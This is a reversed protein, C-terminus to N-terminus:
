VKRDFLKIREGEKQSAFQGDQRYTKVGVEKSFISGLECIYALSQQTLLRNTENTALIEEATNKMAQRLKAIEAQEDASLKAIIQLSKEGWIERREDEAESLEAKVETLVANIEAIKAVREAILAEQLEKLLSAMKKLLTLEKTLIRKLEKFM